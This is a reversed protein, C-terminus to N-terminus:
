TGDRVLEDELQYQKLVNDKGILFANEIENDSFHFNIKALAPAVLRKPLLINGQQQVDANEVTAAQATCHHPLLALLMSQAVIGIITTTVLRM